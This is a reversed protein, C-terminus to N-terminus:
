KNEVIKVKGSLLQELLSDSAGKDKSDEGYTEKYRSKLLFIMSVASFGKIKGRIGKWFVSEVKAQSLQEGIQCADEFEPHIEKWRYYTSRAIGLKSAVQTISRGSKFLPAVLECVKPDYDPKFQNAM